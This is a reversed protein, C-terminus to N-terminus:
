SDEREQHEQRMAVDRLLKVEHLFADVEHADLFCLTARKLGATSGFTIGWRHPPRGRAEGPIRVAGTSHVYLPPTKRPARPDDVSGGLGLDGTVIV